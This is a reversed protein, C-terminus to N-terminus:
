LELKNLIKKAFDADLLFIYDTMIEETTTTTTTASLAFNIEFAVSSFKSDKCHLKTISADIIEKITGTFLEPVSQILSVGTQNSIESLFAGGIINATEKLASIVIDDFKTLSGKPQKTILEALRCSEEISSILASSGLNEGTVPLIVSSMFKEPLAILEPLKAIEVISMRTVELKVPINILKSLAQSACEAANKTIIKLSLNKM